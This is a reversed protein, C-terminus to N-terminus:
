HLDSDIALSQFAACHLPFEDWVAFEWVFSACNPHRSAKLLRRRCCSPESLYGPPFPCLPQDNLAPHHVHHLVAREPGNTKMADKWVFSGTHECSWSVTTDEPLRWSGVPGDKMLLHAPSIQWIYCRLFIDTTTCPSACPVAQPSKETRSCMSDPHARPTLHKGEELNPRFFPFHLMSLLYINHNYSSSIQNAAGCHKM